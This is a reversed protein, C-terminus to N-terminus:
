YLSGESPSHELVWRYQHVLQRRQSLTHKAKTFNKKFVRWMNAWKMIPSKHACRGVSCQTNLLKQDFFAHGGGWARGERNVQDRERLWM